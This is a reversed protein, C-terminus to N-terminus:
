QVIRLGHWYVRGEAMGRKFGLRKWDDALSVMTKAPNQTIRRDKAWDQYRAFLHGAQARYDLGLECCESVFLATYDNLDRYIEGAEVMAPPVDLFGRSRMRTLGELAWNLIGAGEVTIEEKLEPIPETTREQFEIIKVRRFIGDNADNIAPLGEMAWVIKARPVITRERKYKEEIKIPEGSIIRKVLSTAVSSVRPNETAYLMTKGPIDALSFRSKHLDGLGLIGARQGLMVQLGHIITSKGSGMPGYLWAAAELKTDTTTCYGSFEQLFKIVGECLTSNLMYAWRTARATPEYGYPLISTNLYSADHPYLIMTPLHLMGNQCPLYDPSPDFEMAKRFSKKRAMAVISNIMGDTPKIWDTLEADSVLKDVSQDIEGDELEHWYMGTYHLWRGGDHLMLPNQELWRDRLKAHSPKDYSM